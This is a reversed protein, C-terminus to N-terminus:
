IGIEKYILSNVTKSKLNYNKSKMYVTIEGKFDEELTKSLSECIVYKPRYKLWNNSKIVNLDFGEVDISIFDINQNIPLHKDLIDDLRHIEVNIKNQIKYHTETNLKIAAVEDFTNLAPEDFVFYKLDEGKTDLIAIELNIDDPRKEDFLKMSGPLPDINIGKWGMLHFKYTNSFRYPHHAGIDIFFGNRKDGFLRHLVLDEGEQSFSINLFPAAEHQQNIFFTATKNIEWKISKPIASVLAQKIYKKIEM